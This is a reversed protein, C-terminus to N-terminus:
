TSISKMKREDAYITNHKHNVSISKTKEIISISKINRKDIDNNIKNIKISM